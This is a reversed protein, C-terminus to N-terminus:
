VWSQEAAMKKRTRNFYAVDMSFGFKARRAVAEGIRGMGIIGLRTHHVDMGFLHNDSGTQWKGDKVYRDLEPIRRAAALILGFVLDAM